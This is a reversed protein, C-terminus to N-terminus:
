GVKEIFKLKPHLKNHCKDCVTTGNSVELRLEPYKAFSLIHHAQLNGGRNDGCAVCKFGDREFVKLRWNAYEQSSRILLAETCKGGKWNPNKNGKIGLSISKKHEKTLKRGVLRLSQTKRQEETRKKGTNAMSVKRKTEESMRYDKMALLRKQIEEKTKVRGISREILKQVSKEYVPHGIASVSMKRKTEESHKRDKSSLSIKRKWEESHKKGTNGHVKTQRYDTIQNDM